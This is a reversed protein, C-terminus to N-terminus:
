VASPAHVLGLSKTTIVPIDIIGILFALIVSLDVGRGEQQQWKALAEGTSNHAEHPSRGGGRPFEGARTLGRIKKEEYKKDCPGIVSATDRPDVETKDDRRQLRGCSGGTM